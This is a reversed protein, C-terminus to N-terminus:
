VERLGTVNAELWAIATISAQNEVVGQGVVGARVELMAAAQEIDEPKCGYDQLVACRQAVDLITGTRWFEMEMDCGFAEAEYGARYSPSTLYRSGFVPMGERDAQVVHQHEHVCVRVQSWLSWLGGEGEVGLEFPIYITKGLTTVFNHMFHAPDMIGLGGLLAATLKMVMAQDKEVVSSGFTTQM